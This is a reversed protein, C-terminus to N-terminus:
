RRIQNDDRTWNGAQVMFLVFCEKSASHFSLNGFHNIFGALESSTGLHRPRCEEIPVNKAIAAASFDIASLRFSNAVSIGGPLSGM